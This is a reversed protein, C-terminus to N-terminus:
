LHIDFFKSLQRIGWFSIPISICLAVMMIKRSLPIASKLFMSLNRRLNRQYLKIDKEYKQKDTKSIDVAMRMLISFEIRSRNFRAYYTIYDNGYVEAYKCVLDWVKILDFTKEGFITGTISQDNIFYNYIVRNSCAIRNAKLAVQFTTPIDEATLGIPFRIKEFIDRKYLKACAYQVNEQTGIKYFKNIFEINSLLSIRENSVKKSKTKNSVRQMEAMSFDADYKNILNYLYEIADLELWDDSDVFMIYQGNIIELGANRASSLGGNEKHIVTIREDKKAWADCLVSCKDPSGDDVLVIEMNDYTQKIVSEVCRNLYKEVNYVPIIVSILASSEM